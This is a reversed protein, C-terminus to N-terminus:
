VFIVEGLVPIEGINFTINTSPSNLIYGRTGDVNSINKNIDSLDIKGTGDPNAEDFFLSALVEKIKSA